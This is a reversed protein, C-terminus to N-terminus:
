KEPTLKLFLSHDINNKFQTACSKDMTWVMVPQQERLEKNEQQLRQIQLEMQDARKLLAKGVDTALQLIAFGLLIGFWFNEFLKKMYNVNSRSSCPYKQM